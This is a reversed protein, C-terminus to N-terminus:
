KSNLQKLEEVEPETLEDLGSSKQEEVSEKTLLSQRYLRGALDPHLNLM